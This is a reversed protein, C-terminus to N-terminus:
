MRGAEESYRVIIVLPEYGCKPCREPIDVLPDKGSEEFVIFPYPWDRCTDCRKPEADELKTIRDGLRSV